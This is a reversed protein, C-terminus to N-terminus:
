ADVRGRGHHMALEFAIIPPVRSPPGCGRTPSLPALAITIALVVLGAILCRRHWHGRELPRTIDRVPLASEM